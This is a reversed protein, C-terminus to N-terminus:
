ANGATPPPCYRPPRGRADLRAPFQLTGVPWDGGPQAPFQPLYLVFLRSSNIHHLNARYAFDYQDFKSTTKIDELASYVRLDKKRLLKGRLADGLAEIRRNLQEVRLRSGAPRKRRLVAVCFLVTLAVTAFVVFGKAAFGLVDHLLIDM